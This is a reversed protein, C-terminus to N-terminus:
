KNAAELAADITSLLTDTSVPKGLFAIGGADKVIRETTSQVDASVVIVKANADIERLKGLVDIGGLDEMTLDLLVVDPRQVYYTEIAAMGGAAETVRHSAAELTKRMVRRAYGSDDVILINAM